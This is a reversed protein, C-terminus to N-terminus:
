FAGYKCRFTTKEQVHDALIVKWYGAFIGLKSFVNCGKLDDLFEEIKPSPFRDAKMRKNLARYDVCFRKSGDKKQAVVVSLGWPSNTPKIIRATMLMELERNIIENYRKPM